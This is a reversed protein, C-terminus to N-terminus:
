HVTSCRANGPLNPLRPQQTLCECLGIRLSLVDQVSHSTTSHVELGIVVEYDTEVTVPMSDPSTYLHLLRGVLHDQERVVFPVFPFLILYPWLLSPYPKTLCEM